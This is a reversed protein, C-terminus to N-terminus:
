FSLPYYSKEGMKETFGQNVHEIGLSAANLNEDGQWYSVGAHWAREEEPVVQLLADGSLKVKGEREKEEQAIVYHASVRNADKNETFLNVTHAFDCVTYHQILYKIKVANRTDYHNRNGQSPPFHNIRYGDVGHISGPSVNIGTVNAFVNPFAQEIPISNETGLTSELSSKMGSKLNHCGTLGLVLLGAIFNSFNINM